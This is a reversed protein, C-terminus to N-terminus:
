VHTGPEFSMIGRLLTIMAASNEELDNVSVISLGRVMDKHGKGKEREEAEVKAEEEREGEEVGELGRITMWKVILGM